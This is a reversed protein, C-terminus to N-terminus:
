MTYSFITSTNLEFRGTKEILLIRFVIGEIESYDESLFPWDNSFKTTISSLSPLKRNVLIRLAHNREKTETLEEFDGWAIVTKWNSMDKMVDVEFCIKPNQRMMNIKMGEYAHAYIYGEEYAYSMPVVYIRGNAYCGIRGLFNQKLVEEIEVTNLKGLM